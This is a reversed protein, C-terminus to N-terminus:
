ENKLKTVAEEVAAPTRGNVIVHAGESALSKAIAFGIGATSGSVLALKGDIQLDMHGEGYFPSSIIIWRSRFRSGSRWTLLQKSRCRQRLARITIPQVWFGTQRKAM